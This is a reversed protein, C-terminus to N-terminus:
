TIDSKKSLFISLSSAGVGSTYAWSVRAFPFCVGPFNIIYSRSTSLVQTDSSTLDSFNVGDISGQLRITASLSSVSTLTVAQVSLGVADVVNVSSTTFSSSVNTLVILSQNYNEKIM